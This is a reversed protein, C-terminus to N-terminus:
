ASSIGLGDNFCHVGGNHGLQEALEEPVTGPAALSVEGAQGIADAGAGAASCVLAPHVGSATGRAIAAHLLVLTSPLLSRM